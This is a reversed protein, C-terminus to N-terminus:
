FGTPTIGSIGNGSGTRSNGSSSGANATTSQQQTARIYLPNNDGLLSNRDATSNIAINRQFLDQLIQNIDKPEANQLEYMGIIEKHGATSDLQEILQAIRLMWTSPGSVLVSSTRPDPVAFVQSKKKARESTSTQTELSDDGRMMPPPPTFGALRFEAQNQNSNNKSQDPFLEGIQEALETPDANQLHFVRLETIDAVPKDLQEVLGAITTMLGEPSCVILSNSTEDAVATVKALAAPGSSGSGSSTNPEVEQSGPSGIEGPPAGPGPGNFLQARPNSNQSSSRSSFLQQLATALQKADAYHVQFVRLSSITAISNDLATIIKLMRRIDRKSAVLLLTNASENVTLTATSPLLPRLNSVLQTANAHRVPILQTVWEDAKQVAEPDSGTVIELDSTRASELSVISLVRGERVAAFGNRKLATNLLALAEDKTVPDKSWVDLDGAVATEENIVFGAAESLYDLVLRLPAAHFNLRLNNPKKDPPSELVNAAPQHSHTGIGAVEIAGPISFQLDAVSESGWSVKPALNLLIWIMRWKTNM